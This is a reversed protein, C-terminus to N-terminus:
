RVGSPHSTTAFLMGMGESERKAARAKSSCAPARSCLLPRARSYRGWFLSESPAGDPERVFGPLPLLCRLRLRSDASAAIDDLGVGFERGDAHRARLAIAEGAGIVMQVVAAALDVQEVAM